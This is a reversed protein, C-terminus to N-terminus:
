SNNREYRNVKITLEHGIDCHRIWSQGLLESYVLVDLRWLPRRPYPTCLPTKAGCLYLRLLPQVGEM